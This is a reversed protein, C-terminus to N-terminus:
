PFTIIVHEAAQNTGTHSNFSRYVEFFISVDVAGFVPTGITGLYPMQMMERTIALALDEICQTQNYV